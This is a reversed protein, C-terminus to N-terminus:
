VCSMGIQELVTEIHKRSKGSQPIDITMFIRGRKLQAERHNEAVTEVDHDSLMTAMAAGTAGIVGCATAVASYASAIAAGAVAVPGVVPITLLAIGAAAGAMGGASVGALVRTAAHGPVPDAQEGIVANAQWLLAVADPPIGHEVLKGVAEEAEEMDSHICTVLREEDARARATAKQLASAFANRDAPCEFVARLGAAEHLQTTSPTVNKRHYTRLFQGLRTPSLARDTGRDIWEVADPVPHDGDLYNLAVLEASNVVYIREPAIHESMSNSGGLM